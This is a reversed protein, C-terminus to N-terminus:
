QIIQKLIQWFGNSIGSVYSLPANYPLCHFRIHDCQLRLCSLRSRLLLGGRGPLRAGRTVTLPLANVDGDM